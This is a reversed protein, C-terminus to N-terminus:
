EVWLIMELIRKACIAMEDRTILGQAYPEKLQGEQRAPMRIDNGAKVEKYHKATNSWDTTLMGEYGWEGRLIGTILEASESTHVGNLLNYSTMIMKPASEKVCIEFGKLYIERLARESMISDSEIRNTEKNNAAFHKPTAVVKASQIGRVMAAAMKGAILPDESYYEFNRGCLPSRHINLAPTLWIQINNEKCELAGAKGVEEVLETNWSAALATAIPFATTRIGRKPHLRLGAPGDATAIPPIRYRNEYGGMTGTNAVGTNRKGVLVDMLDEDSMQSIFEDLTAKGEDVDYLEIVKELPKYENHYAVPFTKEADERAPVDRLTGDALLRKELKRPACYSNLKEVIVDEKLTYTYDACVTDRVSSGVFFRYDGKELVYASKEIDGMDDYSAMDRIDFTMSVTCSKGAELLPTKQFAILAIKEKSIKGEPASYYVEVVEKGARSGTNTVKASVFIQEENGGVFVNSIEFTTYTIGYGFPYVVADKKGPITEFYRYGVFIDETYKVYDESEHFSASSPYDEFKEACTDVLKGSPADDGVLMDAAALGGELGGQWILLASKVKDNKAFWSTDIMAGVNLLVVVNEFSALVDAVMKKEGDELEFYKDEGDNRRDYGEGSFRCITIIATDTFARASRLLEEPIEPETLRGNEGGNKYANVVHDTYFLSLSDFVEVKGEKMKLGDYINRTYPVFVDGSGSGGKVYDIQANGFIAVKKGKELPLFGNENKLLVAGECAARRSLAIHKECATICSRNDGLPICPLFRARLWKETPYYQQM